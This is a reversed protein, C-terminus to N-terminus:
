GEFDEMGRESTRIGPDADVSKELLALFIANKPRGGFQIPVRRRSYRRLKTMLVSRGIRRSAM